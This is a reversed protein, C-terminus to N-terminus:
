SAPSVASELAPPLTPCADSLAYWEARTRVFVQDYPSWTVGNRRDRLFTSRSPAPDIPQGHAVLCRRLVTQDYSYLADGRSAPVRATRLDIPTEARCADIVRTAASASAYRQIATADTLDLDFTFTYAFDGTPSFGVDAKVVGGSRFGVCSEVAPAAQALTWLQVWDVPDASPPSSGTAEALSQLEVANPTM